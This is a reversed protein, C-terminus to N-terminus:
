DLFRRPPQVQRQRQHVRAGLTDKCSAELADPEVATKVETSDATVVEVEPLQSYCKKLKDAHAVFPKSKSSRQLVYNVPPIVRTVVYPGTYCRQWKPSKRSYRRPYYYWVKSGLDFESRKVRADYATKRREAAM